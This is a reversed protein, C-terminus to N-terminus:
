TLPETLFNIHPYSKVLEFNTNYGQYKLSLKLLGKIFQHVDPNGNKDLTIDMNKLKERCCDTKFFESKGVPDFCYHFNMTCDRSLQFSAKVEIPHSTFTTYNKYVKGCIM